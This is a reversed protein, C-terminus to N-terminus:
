TVNVKKQVRGYIALQSPVKAASVDIYISASTFSSRWNLLRLQRVLDSVTALSVLHTVEWRSYLLICGQSWCLDQSLLEQLLNSYHDQLMAGNCWGNYCRLLQVYSM